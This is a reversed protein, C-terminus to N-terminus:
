RKGRGKGQERGFRDMPSHRGFEELARRQDTAGTYRSLTKPDTHGMLRRVYERDLGSDLLWQAYTHRWRHAHVHFGLRKTLDKHIASIMGGTPPRAQVYDRIVWLWPSDIEARVRRRLYSDLSRLTERGIGVTRPKRGKGIVSIQGEKRDVDEVRLGAAEARRLGTDLLLAFLALNRAGALTRPNQSAFIAAVEDRSFPQRLQGDPPPANIALLPSDDREGEEVLWDFLARIGALYTRVSEPRLEDRVAIAYAQLHTRTIDPLGPWGERRAHRLLHRVGFTYARITNPSQATPRWGARLALM